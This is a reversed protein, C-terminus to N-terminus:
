FLSLQLSTTSELTTFYPNVFGRDFPHIIAVKFNAKNYFFLFIFFREVFVVSVVWKMFGRNIIHVTTCLGSYEFSFINQCFLWHTVFETAGDDDDTVEFVCPLNTKCECLILCIIHISSWLFLMNKSEHIDNFHSNEQIYLLRKHLQYIKEEILTWIINLQVYEM